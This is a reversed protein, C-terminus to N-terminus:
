VKEIFNLNPSNHPWNIKKIGYAQRWNNPYRSYHISAGDEM